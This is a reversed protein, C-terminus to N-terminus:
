GAVAKPRRPLRFRLCPPQRLRRWASAAPKGKLPHSLPMSRSAGVHRGAPRRAPQFGAPPVSPRRAQPGARRFASSRNARRWRSPPAEAGFSRAPGPKPGPAAFGAPGLAEASPGGPPVSAEASAGTKEPVGAEAPIGFLHPRSAFGPRRAAFRWPKPGTPSGAPFGRLRSRGALPGRLFRRPFGRNRRRRSSVAWRQVGRRGPLSGAGPCHPGAAIGAGMVTEPCQRKRAPGRGAVRPARPTRASPQRRRRKEPM